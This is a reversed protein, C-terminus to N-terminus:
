FLPKFCGRYEVPKASGAVVGRECGARVCGGYGRVALEDEDLLQDVVLYGDQEFKARWEKVPQTALWEAM